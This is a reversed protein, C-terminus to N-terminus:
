VIAEAREFADDTWPYSSDAVGADDLLAKGGASQLTSLTEGLLQLQETFEAAADESLSECYIQTMDRIAEGTLETGLAFDLADAAAQASKLSSGSEGPHVMEKIETLVVHLGADIEVLDASSASIDFDDSADSGNSADSGDSADSSDSADSGDSANSGDSADSGDSDDSVAGSIASVSDTPKSESSQSSKSGSADPGCATFLLFLLAILLIPTHKM